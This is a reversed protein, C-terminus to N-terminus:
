KKEEQMAKHLAEAFTEAADDMDGFMKHYRMLLELPKEKGHLKFKTSGGAKTVTESVQSICARQDATLEDWSKFTIGNKDVKVYDTLDSFALNEAQRIIEDKKRLARETNKNRLKKMYAIVLPKKLTRCAEVEATHGRTKSGALIWAERQNPKKMSHLIDCFRKQMITLKRM